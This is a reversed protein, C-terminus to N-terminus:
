SPAVPTGSGAAMRRWISCAKPSENRSTRTFTLVAAVSRPASAKAWPFRTVTAGFAHAGPLPSVDRTMAWSNACM